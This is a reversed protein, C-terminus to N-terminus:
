LPKRPPYVSHGSQLQALNTIAAYDTPDFRLCKRYDDMAEANRGLRALANGRNRFAEAYAPFIAIAGNYAEIAGPDDGLSARMAGLSYQAKASEPSTEALRTYFHVADRWDLNRVATRAGFLLAIGILVIKWYRTEMLLVALLLAVGISPAYALREGMITGIPFLVNATVAFLASYILVPARFKPSALALITAGGALALGPWARWDDLSMVLPIQKYSYDASLTIPVITKFLYLCQVWLATLIRQATSILAAPNDIAPIRSSRSVATHAIWAIGVILAAGAATILWRLNRRHHPPANEGTFVLPLVAFSAASEKSFVALAFLALAPAVCGRWYFILAGLAFSAALTEATGVVSTTAETHIPFLAFLAAAIFATRPPTHIELLFRYLLLVVALGLGLGVAHYLWPHEGGGTSWLIAWLTKSIPRYLEQGRPDPWYGSKWIDLLQRWSHLHLSENEVILVRDDFVFRCALAGLNPILFAAALWPVAHPVPPQPAPPAAAPSSIAKENQRNRRKRSM